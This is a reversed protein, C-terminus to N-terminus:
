EEVPQLVWGRAQLCSQYLDDRKDENLDITYPERIAVPHREVVRTFCHQGGARSPRCDTVIEPSLGGPGAPVYTEYVPPAAALSEQKCVYDDAPYSAPDGVPKVWVYHTCGALLLVTLLLLPMKSM